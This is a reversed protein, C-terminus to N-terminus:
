IQLLTLRVTPWLIIIPYCHQPTPIKLRSKETGTLFKSQTPLTVTRRFLTVFVCTWTFLMHEVRTWTFLMYEVTYNGCWFCNFGKKIISCQVVVARRKMSILDAFHCSWYVHWISKYCNDYLYIMTHFKSLKAFNGDEPFSHCFYMEQGRSFCTNSQTIVAKSVILAERLIMERNMSWKSWSVLSM